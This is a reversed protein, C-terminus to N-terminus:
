NTGRPGSRHGDQIPQNPPTQQIQHPTRRTRGGGSRGAGDLGVGRNASCYIEKFSPSYKYCLHLQEVRYLMSDRSVEKHSSCLACIEGGYIFGEELLPKKAQCESESVRVQTTPDVFEVSSGDKAVRVRVGSLSEVGLSRIEFFGQSVQCRVEKGNGVSNSSESNGEAKSSEECATKIGESTKQMDASGDAENPCKSLARGATIFHSPVQAMWNPKGSQAWSLSGLFGLFVTLAVAQRM